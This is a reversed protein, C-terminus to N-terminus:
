IVKESDDIFGDEDLVIDNLEPKKEYIFNEIRTFDYLNDSSLISKNKILLAQLTEFKKPNKVITFTGCVCCVIRHLFKHDTEKYFRRLNKLQAQLSVPNPWSNQCDFRIKLFYINTLFYLINTNNFFIWYKQKRKVKLHFGNSNNNKRININKYKNKVADAANILNFSKVSKFVFKSSKKSRIENSSKNSSNTHIYLRNLKSSYLKKSCCQRNSHVSSELVSTSKRKAILWKYAINYSLKEKKTLEKLSEKKSLRSFSMINSQLVSKIFDEIIIQREKLHNKLKDMNHRVNQINLQDSSNNKSLNNLPLVGSRDQSVIWSEITELLGREVASLDSRTRKEKFLMFLSTRSKKITNKCFDNVTIKEKKLIKKLENYTEYM